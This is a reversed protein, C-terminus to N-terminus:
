GDLRPALAEVLARPFTFSKDKVYAPNLLKVQPFEDMIEAAHHLMYTAMKSDRAFAVHEAVAAEKQAATMTPVVDSARPTLALVDKADLLHQVPQSSVQLAQMSWSSSAQMGTARLFSALSAETMIRPQRMVYTNYVHPGWACKSLLRSRQVATLDAWALFSKRQGFDVPVVNDFVHDFRKASTLAQFGHLPGRSVVYSKGKETRMAHNYFATTTGDSYFVNYADMSLPTAGWAKAVGKVLAATKGMINDAKMRQYMDGVTWGGALATDWLQKQPLSLDMVLRHDVRELGIADTTTFKYVGCANNMSEQFAVKPLPGAMGKPMAFVGRTQGLLPHLWMGDNLSLVYEPKLAVQLGKLILREHQRTLDTDQGFNDFFKVSQVQEGQGELHVLVYTALAEADRRADESMHTFAQKDVKM